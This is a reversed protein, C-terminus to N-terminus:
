FVLQSIYRLLFGPALLNCLTSSAGVQAPYTDCFELLRFATDQITMAAARIVGHLSSQAMTMLSMLWVEVNGEARVPKELQLM